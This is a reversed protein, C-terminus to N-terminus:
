MGPIMGAYNFHSADAFVNTGYAHGKAEMVHV